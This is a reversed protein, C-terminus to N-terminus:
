LQFLKKNDNLQPSYLVKFFHQSEEERVGSLIRRFSFALMEESVKYKHMISWKNSYYILLAYKHIKVFALYKPKDGM